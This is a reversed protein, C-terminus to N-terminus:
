DEQLTDPEVAYWRFWAPLVADRKARSCAVQALFFSPAPPLPDTSPYLMLVIQLVAQAVGFTSLTTNGIGRDQFVSPPLWLDPDSLTPM